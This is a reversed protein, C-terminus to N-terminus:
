ALNLNVQSPIDQVLLVLQDSVQVHTVKQARLPREEESPGALYGQFGVLHGEKCLGHAGQRLLPVAEGVHLYTM